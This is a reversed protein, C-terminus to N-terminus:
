NREYWQLGGMLLRDKQLGGLFYQGMPNNSNASLLFLSYAQELNKDRGVGDRYMAGLRFQCNSNGLTAGREYFNSAMEFDQEIEQGLQYLTGVYFCAQTNDAHASKGLRIM